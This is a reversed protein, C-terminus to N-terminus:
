DRSWALGEAELWRIAIDVVCKDKFKFRGHNGIAESKTSKQSQFNKAGLELAYERNQLIRSYHWLVEALL